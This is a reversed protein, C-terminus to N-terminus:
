DRPADLIDLAGDIEKAAAFCLSDAERMGEVGARDLEALLERATSLARFALALKTEKDRRTM